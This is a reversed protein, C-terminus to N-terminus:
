PVLFYAPTVVSGAEARFTQSTDGSAVTIDGPELDFATFWTVTDTTAPVVLEPAEGGPTRPVEPDDGDVVWYSVEVPEGVGDTVQLDTPAGETVYFSGWLHVLGSESLVGPALGLQEGMSAVHDDLAVQPWAFVTGTFWAGDGSPSHGRLVAPYGDEEPTVTVQYPVDVPLEVRWYGPSSEEYPREAVVVEGEDDLFADGADDTFAVDGEQFLASSDAPDTLVTGGLAVWEPITRQEELYECGVLLLLM